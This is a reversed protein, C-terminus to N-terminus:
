VNKILIEDMYTVSFDCEALMTDSVSSFYLHPGFSHRNFLYIGDAIKYNNFRFM